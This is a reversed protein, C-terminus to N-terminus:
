EGAVLVPLDSPAVRRALAIADAMLPSATVIDEFVYRADSVNKSARLDAKRDSVQSRTHSSSGGLPLVVIAGIPNRNRFVPSTIVRIQRGLAGSDVAQEYGETHGAAYGKSLGNGHEFVAGLVPKLDRLLSQGSSGPLAALLQEAAANLRVVRSRRDIAFIAEAPLGSAREFFAEGLVKEDLTFELMLRQEILTATSYVALLTHPQVGEKHGTVDIVAIIEGSLPDRIPAATCVWRQWAQVYHDAGVIQVARREALATGVGNTGAAQENWNGGTRFNIEALEEIVRWHGITSLVYGDADCLALMDQTDRLGESIQELFPLGLRLLALRERRERSEEDALVIPSRKLAPDIHLQDRSRVWSDLVLPGIKPERGSVVFDDWARERDSENLPTANSLVLNGIRM